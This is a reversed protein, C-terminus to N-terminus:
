QFTPLPPEFGDHFITDLVAGAEYAGFDYPTSTNNFVYPRPAGDLDFTPLSVGGGPGWRDVASSTIVLHYDGHALDVFPDIMDQVNTGTVAVNSVGINRVTVPVNAGVNYAAISGADHLMSNELTLSAPAFAVNIMWPASLINNAVTTNSVRVAHGDGGILLTAVNDALLSSDIHANAGASLLPAADAYNDLMYGNWFNFSSTASAGSTGVRVIPGSYAQNGSISNCKLGSACAPIPEGTTTRPMTIGSQSAFTKTMALNIHVQATGYAISESWIAAGGQATNDKIQTNVLSTFAFLPDSAEMLLYLAGGYQATNDEIRLPYQARSNALNLVYTAGWDGGFYIGGGHREATNSGLFPFKASWSNVRLNSNVMSIAGGDGSNSLAGQARNGLFWSSRYGTIAVDAFVAFLGGGSGNAVNSLVRVGDLSVQKHASPSGGVYLGAGYNAYNTWIGVDSLVLDGSSNSRIGGGNGTTFGHTVTLHLLRLKGTGTHIIISEPFDSDQGDLISMGTSIGASCNAFGGEIILEDAGTVALNTVSTYTGTSIQVLDLGPNQVAAAVASGVHHYDCAADSDPGVTIAAMASGGWGFIGLTLSMILMRLMPRPQYRHRAVMNM